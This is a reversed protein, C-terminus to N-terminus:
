QTIAAEMLKKNIRTTVEVYYLNDAPLLEEDEIAEMKQMADTYKTMYEAYDKMMTLTDTADAEAYKTMFEIYEDFFAEYADMTEKFEPTVVGTDETTTEETNDQTSEADEGTTEDVTEEKEGDTTAETAEETTTADETTSETVNDSVANETMGAWDSEASGSGCACLGMVMCGALLVCLLRKM